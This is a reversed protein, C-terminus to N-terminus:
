QTSVHYRDSIDENIPIRSALNDGTSEGRITALTPGVQSFGLEVQSSSPIIEEVNTAVTLLGTLTSLAGCDVMAVSKDEIVRVSDRTCSAFAAELRERRIIIELFQSLIKWDDEKNCDVEFSLDELLYITKTGIEMYQSAIYLSAMAQRIELEAQQQPTMEASHDSTCGSAVRWLEADTAPAM